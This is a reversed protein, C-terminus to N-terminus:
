RTSFVNGFVTDKFLATATEDWWLKLRKQVIEAYRKLCINQPIFTDRPLLSQCGPIPLVFGCIGNYQTDQSHGRQQAVKQHINLNDYVCNLGNRVITSGLLTAKPRRFISHTQDTVRNPKRAGKNNNGATGQKTFWPYPVPQLLLRTYRTGVEINDAQCTNKAVKNSAISFSRENNFLQYVEKPLEETETKPVKAPAPRAEPGRNTAQLSSKKGCPLNAPSSLM